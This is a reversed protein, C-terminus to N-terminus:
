VAVMVWDFTKYGDAKMDVTKSQSTYGNASVTITYKGAGMQHSYNGDDDSFLDFAVEGDAQISLTAGVIPANTGSAKVEGKIGAVPPNILDWLTSFVFLKRTELDNSFIVQGDRLMATLTRYCANNAILKAATAASTEEASKFALYQASFNTAATAVAAAFTAPMNSNAPTGSLLTANAPAAMYNKMAQNLLEMSEWDENGADKFYQQGAAKFQITWVDRDTFATEIYSKLTRFNLLCIDGMKVLGIRLTEAAANRTVDDPMAKAAAEAALAATKYAATYLAKHATFNALKLSYNAWATEIISYLDKQACPYERTILNAM